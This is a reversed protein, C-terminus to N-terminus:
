KWNKFREMKKKIRERINETEDKDIEYIGNELRLVDGEKADKPIKARDINKIEGSKRNECIAFDGEFRDLVYLEISNM